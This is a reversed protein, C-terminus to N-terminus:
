SWRISSQLIIGEEISRDSHEIISGIHSHYEGFIVVESKVLEGDKISYIVMDLVDKKASPDEIPPLTSISKVFQPTCAISIVPWEEVLYHSCEMRSDFIPYSAYLDFQHGLDSGIATNNFNIGCKKNNDLPDQIIAIFARKSIHSIQTLAEMLLVKSLRFEGVKAM